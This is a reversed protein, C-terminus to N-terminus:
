EAAEKEVYQKGDIIVTSRTTKGSKYTTTTSSNPCRAVTISGGDANNLEFFRCDSLEVPKVPFSKEKYGNSCGGVALLAALIMMRRM